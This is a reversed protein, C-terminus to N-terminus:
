FVLMGIVKDILEIETGYKKAFEKKGAHLAVGYGGTRHHKPCLPIVKMHNRGGGMSTFCHHIEAPMQCILCSLEQVRDMHASESKTPKRSKAM